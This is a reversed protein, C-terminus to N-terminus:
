HRIGAFIQNANEAFIWNTAGQAIFHRIGAFIQNANEAFIWYEPCSRRPTARIVLQSITPQKMAPPPASKRNASRVQFLTRPYRGTGCPSPFPYPPNEGARYRGM